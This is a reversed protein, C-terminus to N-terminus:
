IELDEDEQEPYDIEDNKTEESETVTKLEEPSDIRDWTIETKTVVREKKEVFYPQDYFNDGQMETLGRQWDIRIFINDKLEIISSIDRTWRHDEGEIEIAGYGYVLYTIDAVEIPEGAKIKEIVWDEFHEDHFQKDDLFSNLEEDFDEHEKTYEKYSKIVADLFEATVDKWRDNESIFTRATITGGAHYQFSDTIHIDRTNIPLNNEYVTKFIEKIEEKSLGKKNLYEKREEKKM